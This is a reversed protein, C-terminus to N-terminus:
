SQALAKEARKIKLLLEECDKQDLGQLPHGEPMPRPKSSAELSAIRNKVTIRLKRLEKMNWSGLDDIPKNRINAM